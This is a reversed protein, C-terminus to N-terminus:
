AELQLPQLRVSVNPFRGSAERAKLWTPCDRGTVAKWVTCIAEYTLNVTRRATTINADHFHAEKVYGWKTPDPGPECHVFSDRREKSEGFLDAFPPKNGDLLTSKGTILAPVELFRKRLSANKSKLDMLKQRTVSTDAKQERRGEKERGRGGEEGRKGGKRRGGREREKKKEQGTRAGRGGGQAM